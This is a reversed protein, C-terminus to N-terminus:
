ALDALHTGAVRGLEVLNAFQENSLFQDGTSYNPFRRDVKAFRRLAIDLSSALQAKAYHITGTYTEGGPGKYTVELTAVLGTPLAGDSPRISDLTKLDVGAVIEPLELYALEVAQRLTTYAGVEDGSADICLITRCRRRLLEVLGLNEWHGGDAVFVYRDEDAYWGFIEKMTYGFRVPKFKVHPDTVLRPNPLWIGLDVNLAALLSNTSGMNFRGMASAFAAGSTAMWSAVAREVALDGDLRELYVDTPVIVDGIRVERPSITFSEAPLGGLAIGSRQQACCIVLEPDVPLENWKIQQPDDPALLKGTAPDHWLGFTRRLRRRYIRHISLRTIGVFLYVFAFAAAAGAFWGATRFTGAGVAADTAVKGAWLFAVLALLVGGLRPLQRAVKGVVPKRVMQWVAAFVGAFASTGVASARLGATGGSLWRGATVMAVPLVVLFAELTVSVIMLAAAVKWLNAVKWSNMASVMLVLGAVVAVIVGPLWLEATVDLRGPLREGQRLAPQVAHSGLLRGIPWALALVLAGLMAVNFAIYGLAARVPRGLGGPGNRLFRHRGASSRPIPSRLWDIITTAAPAEPASAKVLRWATAAYAGGSVATLWRARRLVNRSELSELAGIAFAAARIGGGSCCVGLQDGSAPEPEPELPTGPVPVPRASEGFRAIALGIAVVAAALAAAVSLWKLWAVTAVTVPLWMHDPYTFRTGDARLGLATLGNEFLDLGGAIFPAAIALNTLPAMGRAHQLPWWRRVVASLALVYGAILLVDWILTARAADIDAAENEPCAGLWSQLRADSGALQTALHFRPCPDTAGVRWLGIGSVIVGLVIVPWSGLGQKPRARMPEGATRDLFWDALRRAMRM